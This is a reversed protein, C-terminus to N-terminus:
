KGYLRDLRKKQEALRIEEPSKIPWRRLALAAKFRLWWHEM